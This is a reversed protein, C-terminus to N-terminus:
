SPCADLMVCQTVFSYAIYSLVAALLLWACMARFHSRRLRPDALYSNEPNSPLYVISAAQGEQLSDYNAKGLQVERKHLSGASDEFAYTVYYFTGDDSDIRKGVIRGASPKESRLRALAILSRLSFFGVGLAFGGIILLYILKSFDPGSLEANRL